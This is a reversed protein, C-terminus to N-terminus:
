RTCLLPMPTREAVLGRQHQQEGSYSEIDTVVLAVRGSTPIGNLRKKIDVVAQHTLLLEPLAQCAMCAHLCLMRASVCLRKRACANSCPSACRVRQLRPLGWRGYWSVYACYALLLLLVVSSAASIAAIADGGLSKDCLLM